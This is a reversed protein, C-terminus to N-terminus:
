NKLRESNKKASEPRNIRSYLLCITMRLLSKINNKLQLFSNITKALFFNAFIKKKEAASYVKAM